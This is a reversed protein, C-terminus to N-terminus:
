STKIEEWAEEEELLYGEWGDNYGNNYGFYYFISGYLIILIVLIAFTTNKKNMEQFKYLHPYLSLRM